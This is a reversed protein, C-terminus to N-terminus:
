TNRVNTYQKSTRLSNNVNQFEYSRFRQGSDRSYLTSDRQEGGYRFRSLPSSIRGPFHITCTSFTTFRPIDELLLSPPVPFVLRSRHSLFSRTSRQKRSARYVVLVTTPPPSPPSVSVVTIYRHFIFRHSAHINTGHAPARTFVHFRVKRSNRHCNKM